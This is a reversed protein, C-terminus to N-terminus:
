PRALRWVTGDERVTWASGGPGAALSVATGGVAKWGGAWRLVAYGGDPAAHEDLAWVGGEPGVAVTRARGFTPNWGDTTRRWVGGDATVVWPNGDPGVALHKGGAAVARRAERHRVALRHGGSWPEATLVWLSGDAGAAVARIGTGVQEWAGEERHWLTGDADLVWPRGRRDVALDLGRRDLAAWSGDEQRRLLDGEATVLWVSCDAGTVIRAAPPAEVPAWDQARAPAAALLLLLALLPRLTRM